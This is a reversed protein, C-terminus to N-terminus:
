SAELTKEVVWNGGSVRYITLTKSSPEGCADFAIPGGLGDVKVSGIAEM